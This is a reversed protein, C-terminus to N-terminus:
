PKWLNIQFLHLCETWLVPPSWPGSARGEYRWEMGQQHFESGIWFWDLPYTLLCLVKLFCYNLLFCVWIPSTDHIPLLLTQKGSSFPLEIHSFRSIYSPFSQLNKNLLDAGTLGLGAAYTGYVPPNSAQRCAVLEHAGGFSGSSLETTLYSEHLVSHRDADVVFGANNQKLWSDELTVGTAKLALERSMGWCTDPLSRAVRWPSFGGQLAVAPKVPKETKMGQLWLCCLANTSPVSASLVSHEGGRCCCHIRQALGHRRHNWTLAWFVLVGSTARPMKGFSFLFSEESPVSITWQKLLM